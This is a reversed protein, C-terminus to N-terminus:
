VQFAHVVTFTCPKTTHKLADMVASISSVPQRNLFIGVTSTTSPTSVNLEICFCYCCCPFPFFPICVTGTYTNKATQVFTMTQQDHTSIILPWHIKLEVPRQDIIFQETCSVASGLLLPDCHKSLFPLVTLLNVAQSSELNSLFLQVNKDLHDQSFLDFLKTAFTSQQQLSHCCWWRCLPEMDSVLFNRLWQPSSEVQKQLWSATHVFEHEIRDLYDVLEQFISHVRAFAVLKTKVHDKQRMTKTKQRQMVSPFTPFPTSLYEVNSKQEEVEGPLLSFSANTEADSAISAFLNPFITAHEACKPLTLVKEKQRILDQESSVSLIIVFHFCKTKRCIKQFLRSIKERNTPQDHCYLQQWEPKSPQDQRWGIHPSSIVFSYLVHDSMTPNCVTLVTTKCMPLPFMFATLGPCSLSTFLCLPRLSRITQLVSPDSLFSLPNQVADYYPFLQPHLKNIQIQSCLEATEFEVNFNKFLISNLNFLFPKWEKQLPGFQAQKLMQQVNLMQHVNQSLSYVKSHNTGM